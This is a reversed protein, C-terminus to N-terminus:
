FPMPYQKIVQNIEDICDISLTIDFADLNESLQAMTTAGIITSTVGDVQDCWALALQSPTMNYKQAINVYAQIAEQSM